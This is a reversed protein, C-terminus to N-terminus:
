AAARPQVERAIQEGLQRRAVEIEYSKQLGLWLEVSTGFYRALRLAVEADVPAAGDLIAAVRDPPVHLAGALQEPTVEIEELWDVLISGPHVPDLLPAGPEVIDSFDVLGAEVEERTITVAQV